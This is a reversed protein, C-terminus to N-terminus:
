APNVPSYELQTTAVSLNSTTSHMRTLNCPFESSNVYRQSAQAIYGYPLHPIGFLESFAQLLVRMLYIPYEECFRKLSTGSGSACFIGKKHLKARLVGMCRMCMRTTALESTFTGLLCLSLFTLYFDTQISTKLFKKILSSLASRGHIPEGRKKFVM